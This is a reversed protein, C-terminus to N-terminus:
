QNGKQSTPRAKDKEKNQDGIFYVVVDGGKGTHRVTPPPTYDHGPTATGLWVILIYERSVVFCNILLPPNCESGALATYTNEGQGPGHPSAEPHVPPPKPDTDSSFIIEEDESVISYVSVEEEDRKLTQVQEKCCSFFCWPCIRPLCDQM